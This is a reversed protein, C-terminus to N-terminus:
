CMIHAHPSFYTVELAAITVVNHTSPILRDMNRYREVEEVALRLLEADEANQQAKSVQPLLEGREPPTTSVLACGLSSVLNAVYLGDSFQIYNLAM